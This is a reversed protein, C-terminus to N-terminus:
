DESGLPDMMPNMTVLRALELEDIEEDKDKDIRDLLLHVLGDRPNDYNKYDGNLSKNM